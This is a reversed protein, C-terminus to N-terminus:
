VGWSRSISDARPCPRFTRLTTRLVHHSWQLSNKEAAQRTCRNHSEDQPPPGGLGSWGRVLRDRCFCFELLGHFVQGVPASPSLVVHEARRVQDGGGFSLLGGPEHLFPDRYRKRMWNELFLHNVTPAM